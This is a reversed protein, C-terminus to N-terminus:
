NFNWITLGKPRLHCATHLFIGSVYRHIQEKGRIRERSRHTCISMSSHILNIKLCAANSCASLVVRSWWWFCFLQPSQCSGWCKSIKFKFTKNSYSYYSGLRFIHFCIATTEKWFKSFHLKIYYKSFTHLTSLHLFLFSLIISCLFALTRIPCQTM